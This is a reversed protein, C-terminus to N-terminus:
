PRLLPLIGNMSYGRDRICMELGFVTGLLVIFVHSMTVGLIQKVIGQQFIKMLKCEKCIIVFAM